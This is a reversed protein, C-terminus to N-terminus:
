LTTYFINVQAEKFRRNEDLKLNIQIQRWFLRKDLASQPMIGGYVHHFRDDLAYRTTHRQLFTQMEAVSAGAPLERTIMNLTEQRTMRDYRALLQFGAFVLVITLGVIALLWKLTRM